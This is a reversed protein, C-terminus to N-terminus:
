NEYIILEKSIISSNYILWIFFAMMIRESFFVPGKLVFSFILGIFLFCFAYLQIKNEVKLYRFYSTIFHTAYVFVFLLGCIGFAIFNLLIGSDTSYLFNYQESLGPQAWFGTGIFVPVNWPIFLYSDFLENTSATELTGNEIFNYIPEFVFRLFVNFKDVGLVATLLAVSIFMCSILCFLYFLKRKSISFLLIFVSFVLIFGSRGAILSLAALLSTVIVFKVNDRYKLSLCWNSFMFYILGYCISTDYISLGALGTARFHGQEALIKWENTLDIISNFLTRFSPLSLQAIIVLLQIFLSFLVAKILLGQYTQFNEKSIKLAINRIFLCCGLPIILAKLVYRLIIFLSDTNQGVFFSVLCMILLVTIFIIENRLTNPIKYKFICTSFGLFAIILPPYVKIGSIIYSGSFLSFLVIVNLFFKSFCSFANM